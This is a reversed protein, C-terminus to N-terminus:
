ARDHTARSRWDFAELTELESSRDLDVENACIIYLSGDDAKVTLWNGLDTARMIRGRVLTGDILVSVRRGVMTTM